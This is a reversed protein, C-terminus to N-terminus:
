AEVKHAKFVDDLWSVKSLEANDILFKVNSFKRDVIHSILEDANTGQAIFENTNKNFFYAVNGHVEITLEVDKTQALAQEKAIEAQKVEKGIAIVALIVRVVFYIVAAELMLTVIQDMNNMKGNM